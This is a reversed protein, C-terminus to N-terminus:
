TESITSADRLHDAIGLESAWPELYPFDLTSRQVQLIAVVDRVQRESGSAKSWELKSLITDELAATVKALLDHQM